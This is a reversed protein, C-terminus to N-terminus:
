ELNLANANSSPSYSKDADVVGSLFYDRQYQYVSQYKETLVPDGSDFRVDTPKFYTLYKRGGDIEISGAPYDIHDGDSEVDSTMVTFLMGMGDWGKDLGQKYNEVEYFALSYTGSNISSKAYVKGTWEPVTFTIGLYSDHYTAGDILVASNFSEANSTSSQPAQTETPAATTPAETSPEETEPETTPEETTQAATTEVPVTTTPTPRYFLSRLIGCGSLSAACLAAALTILLVNKLKKM